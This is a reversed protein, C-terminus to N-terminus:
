AAKRVADYPEQRRAPSIRSVFPDTRRAHAERVRAEVMGWDGNVIACRLALVHNARKQSWRMMSGDLRQGVVHNVAGEVAGTAIDMDVNLLERYRLRSRNNTLYTLAKTVRKRRRGRSKEISSLTTRLAELVADVEGRRLEDQRAAVWDKLADSGKKHLATGATWLYEAVHFWDLAPTSESFFEQQMRWLVKAGDSLFWSQKTALGRKLAHARLMEFLRRRGFCAIVRKNIPGELQGRGNRKLTYVVGVTSMRANKSKDGQKRRARPHEHRRRRRHVRKAEGRRRKRHPRSRRQHEVSGIMGVGKEDAQIVLVEGDGAPAPLNALYESAHPGLQDVIGLVSKKSPAYGGFRAMIEVVDDFVVKAALWGALLHVDLTMGGDAVGIAREHPAITMPGNGAVRDYVARFWRVKGCRIRLTTPALGRLTYWTGRWQVKSPVVTPQRVALWLSMLACGLAMVRAFLEGSVEHVLLSQAPGLLWALCDQFCAQTNALCEARISEVAVTLDNSDAPM